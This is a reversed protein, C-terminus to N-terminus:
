IWGPRIGLRALTRLVRGPEGWDSWAVERVPLVGLDDPSRGLVDASFNTPPLRAYLSRM